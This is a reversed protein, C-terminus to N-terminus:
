NLVKFTGLMLDFNEKVRQSPYESISFQYIKDKYPVLVVFEHGSPIGTVKLSRIGSVQMSDYSLDIAVKGGTLSRYAKEAYQEVSLGQSNDKVHISIGHYPRYAFNFDVIKYKEGAHSGEQVDADPPYNISYGGDTDVYNEWGVMSDTAITPMSSLQQFPTALPLCSPKPKALPHPLPSQQQRAGLWYGGLGFMSLLLVSTLIMTLKKLWKPSNLVSQDSQHISNEKQQM